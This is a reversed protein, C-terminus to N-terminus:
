LYNKQPNIRKKLHQSFGIEAQQAGSKNNGFVANNFFNKWFNIDFVVGFL